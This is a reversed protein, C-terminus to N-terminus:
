RAQRGEHLVKLSFSLKGDCSLSSQANRSWSKEHVKFCRTKAGKKRSPVSPHHFRKQLPSQIRLENPLEAEQGVEQTWPSCLGLEQFDPQGLHVICSKMNVSFTGRDNQVFRFAWMTITAKGRSGACTVMHMMLTTLATFCARRTCYMVFNYLGFIQSQWRKWPEFWWLHTKM